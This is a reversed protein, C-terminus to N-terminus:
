QSGPEKPKVIIELDQIATVVVLQGKEIPTDSSANWYEGRIYVKGSEGIPTYAV